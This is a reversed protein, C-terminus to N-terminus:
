AFFKLFQFWFKFSDAITKAMKKSMHKYPELSKANAAGKFLQVEADSCGNAYMATYRHHRFWYAPRETWIISYKGILEGLRIYIKSKDESIIDKILKKEGNPDTIERLIPKSNTWKVPNKNEKRFAWFAYMEPPRNKIYKYMENTYKNFPLHIPHQKGGKLTKIRCKFYYKGLDKTKEIDGGKIDAIESPRRGTYFLCIFLARAQDLTCNRPMSKKAIGKLWDNFQNQTVLSIDEQKYDIYHKNKIVPM